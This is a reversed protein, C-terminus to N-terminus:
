WVEMRDLQAHRYADTVSVAEQDRDERDAARREATKIQKATM